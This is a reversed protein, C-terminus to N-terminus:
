LEAFISIPLDGIIVSIPALCHLFRRGVHGHHGAGLRWILGGVLLVLLKVLICATHIGTNGSAKRHGLAVIFNSHRTAQLRKKFASWAVSVLHVILSIYCITGEVFRNATDQHGLVCHWRRLHLDAHKM